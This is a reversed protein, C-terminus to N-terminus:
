NVFRINQHRSFSQLSMDVCAKIKCAMTELWDVFETKNGQVNEVHVRLIRTYVFASCGIQIACVRGGGRHFAPSALRDDGVRLQRSLPRESELFHLLVPSPVSFLDHPFHDVMLVHYLYFLERGSSTMDVSRKLKSCGETSRNQKAVMPLM